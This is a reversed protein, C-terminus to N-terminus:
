RPDKTAAPRGTADGGDMFGRSWSRGKKWVMSYRVGAALYYFELGTGARRM